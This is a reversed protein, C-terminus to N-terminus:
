DNIKEMLHLIHEPRSAAVWEGHVEYYKKLEELLKRELLNMDDVRVTTLFKFDRLPSSTQYTSLRKSLSITQGIKYYGVWAPNTIIYLYGGNVIPAKSKNNTSICARCRSNNNLYFCKDKKREKCQKCYKM